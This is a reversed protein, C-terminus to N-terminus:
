EDGSAFLLVRKGPVSQRVYGANAEHTGVMHGDYSGYFSYTNVPQGELRLRSFAPPILDPLCNHATFLHDDPAEMEKHVSRTALGCPVM